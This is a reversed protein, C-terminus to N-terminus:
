WRSTQSKAEEVQLPKFPFQQFRKAVIAQQERQKRESPKMHAREALLREREKEARLQPGHGRAKMAAERESVHLRTYRLAPDADFPSTSGVLTSFPRAHRATHSGPKLHDEHVVLGRTHSLRSAHKSAGTGSADANISRPPFGLQELNWAELEAATTAGGDRTIVDSGAKSASSQMPGDKQFDLRFAPRALDLARRALVSQLLASSPPLLSLDGASADRDFQGGIGWAAAAAAEGLSKPAWGPRLQELKTIGGNAITPPELGGQGEGGLGGFCTLYRSADRREDQTSRSAFGLLFAPRSSLAGGGGGGSRSTLPAVDDGSSSSSNNNLTGSSSGSASRASSAGNAAAAAAAAAAAHRRSSNTPAVAPTEKLAKELAQVPNPAPELPVFFPALSRDLADPGPQLQQLNASTAEALMRAQAADCQHQSPSLVVVGPHVTLRESLARRRPTLIPRGQDDYQVEKPKKAVAARARHSQSGSAPGDGAESSSTLSSPLDLANANIWRPKFTGDPLRMLPPGEKTEEPAANKANAKVTAKTKSALHDKYQASTAHSLKQHTLARAVREAATGTGQAGGARSSAGALSMSAFLSQALVADESQEQQHLASGAREKFDLADSKLTAADLRAQFADRTRFTIRSFRPSDLLEGATAGQNQGASSSPPRPHLLASSSSSTSSSNAGHQTSSGYEGEPTDCNSFRDLEDGEGSGAAATAATAAAAHFPLANADLTKAIMKLKRQRPSWTGEQKAQAHAQRASRELLYGPHLVETRTCPQTFAYSAAASRATPPDHLTMSRNTFLGRASLAAEHARRESRATRETLAYAAEREYMSQPLTSPDAQQRQTWYGPTAAGRASSSSSSSAASADLPDFPHPEVCLLLTIWERRYKSRPVERSESGRHHQALAPRVSLTATLDELVLSPQASDNELLPSRKAHATSARLLIAEHFMAELIAQHQQQITPPMQREGATIDELQQQSYEFAVHHRAAFAALDQMNVRTAHRQDLACFFSNLCETTVRRTPVQSGVASSSGRATM